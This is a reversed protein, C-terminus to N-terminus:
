HKHHRSVAVTEPYKPSVEKCDILPLVFVKYMYLLM